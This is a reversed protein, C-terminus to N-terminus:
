TKSFTMSTIDFGQIGIGHVPHLPIYLYKEGSGNLTYTCSLGGTGNVLDTAIMNTMEGVPQDNAYVQNYITLTDDTFMSSSSAFTLKKYTSLDIKSALVLGIFCGGYYYWDGDSEYQAMDVHIVGNSITVNAAGSGPWYGAFSEPALTIGMSDPLWTGTVGFITVGKKINSPILNSDGSIVQAGALYQNSDIQQDVSSPIFTAAAKSPARGEKKTGDAGIFSYGYLVDTPLANLGSPVGKGSGAMIGKAM